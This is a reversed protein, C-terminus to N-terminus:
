LSIYAYSKNVRLGDCGKNWFLSIEYYLSFSHPWGGVEEYFLYSGPQNQPCCHHLDAPAAHVRLSHTQATFLVDTQMRSIVPESPQPPPQKSSDARKRYRSFPVAM